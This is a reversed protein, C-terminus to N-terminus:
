EEVFEDELVLVNVKGTHATCRDIAIIGNSYYPEWIATKGFEDIEVDFASGGSAIADRMAQMYHGYSCHWHGCVVTKGPETFGKRAMDIGNLWRAQEWESYHASRWDPNFEFKRNNRYYMPLGDKCTVPIWGHVFIYNKTEFYNVMGDIFNKTRNYAVLCCEDFSNGLGADGFKCVTDYTGNSYDHMGPYGRDCLEQFLSEHNGKVLVKRHLSNLYHMVEIPQDGRDWVDGCVILWHEENNKDFGAKDLANIMEDYFGHIDSVVFLKPM